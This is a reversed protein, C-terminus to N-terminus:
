TAASDSVHRTTDWGEGSRAGNTAPASDGTDLDDGPKPMENILKVRGIRRGEMSLVILRVNGITVEDNIEPVRGLYTYILGGLTDSDATPLDLDLEYNVDDLDVRADYITEQASITESIPEEVDYEDQIEGVIEEILDEITVLGATGGYEDVVIAIHVKMRKLESLLDNVPKSEPIFYAPRMIDRVVPQQAGDRLYRLVDKAYLLGSVQDITEDYVPIRSHGCAIIVDLAERVTTASEVGVIDIRPVMVERAVTDGLDFVGEIMDREEEEIIGEEEGVDVLMRFEEERALMDTSREGGGTALFGVVQVLPSLVTALISLPRAVLTAASEPWRVALAKPIFQGLLLTLLLLIATIYQNPGPTSAIALLTATAAGGILGITNLVLVTALSRRPDSLVGRLAEARTAGRDMTTQVRIRNLATIATEAAAAFATMLWFLVFLALEIWYSSSPDL